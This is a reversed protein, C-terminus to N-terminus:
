WNGVVDTFHFFVLALMVAAYSEEGDIVLRSISDDWLAM